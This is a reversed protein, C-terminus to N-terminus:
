SLRVISWRSTIRAALTHDYATANPHYGAAHLMQEVSLVTVDQVLVNGYSTGGYTLALISGISSRYGDATTHGDAWAVFVVAEFDSGHSQNPLIKAAAVAQGPRYVMEVTSKIAAPTLGRWLDFLHSGLIGSM